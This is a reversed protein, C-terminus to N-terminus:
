QKPRDKQPRVHMFSAFRPVENRTLGYYKYTVWEGVNPPKKRQENSFGTGLKFRIGKATEVMLSGMMGSFKGKGAIHGIVRAEADAYRKVKLLQLSRGDEYYANKAHLMLGEGGCDIVADLASELAQHSELTFHRMAELTASNTQGILLEIYGVREEFTSNSQPMDFVVLSVQEWREDPTDSLVISATLEFQGRGLWLEGDLPVNPWGLTFGLPSHIINGNRTLLQKGTWRARIGDLKESVLYHSVDLTNRNIDYPTAQQIPVSDNANAYEGVIPSLCLSLITIAIYRM